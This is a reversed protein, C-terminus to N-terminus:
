GDGHYMRVAVTALRVYELFPAELTIVSGDLSIGPLGAAGVVELCDENWNKALDGGNHSVANRVCALADLASASIGCERFSPKPPAPEAAALTDFDSHSAGPLNWSYKGDEGELFALCGALYIANSYHVFDPHEEGFKGELSGNPGERHAKGLM